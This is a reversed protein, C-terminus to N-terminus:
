IDGRTHVLCIGIGQPWQFLPPVATCVGLCHMPTSDASGAILAIPHAPSPFRNQETSWGGGGREGSLNVSLHEFNRRVRGNFGGTEATRNSHGVCYMQLVCM